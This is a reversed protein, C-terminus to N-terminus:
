PASTGWVIRYFRPPNASFPTPDTFSMTTNTARSSTTVATWNTLNSSRELHYYLGRQTPTSMTVSTPQMAMSPVVKEALINGTWYKAALNYASIGAQSGTIRGHYDDESVHIGGFRRSQGAQDAADYYTRWQLDVATSPGLDIQM